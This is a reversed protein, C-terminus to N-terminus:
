IILDLDVYVHNKDDQSIGLYRRTVSYSSHQYIEMLLAPAVGNKWAHYGFTKRLSHCSARMNLAAAADRIIKYAQVRCIPKSKDKQSIFIYQEPATPKSFKYLRLSQIVNKNMAIIKSKGTKNETISITKRFNKEEFDFVDEWRLQLLDSIRLATHLGMVILVHNRLQGRTLYYDILEKIKKKDRIPETTAM